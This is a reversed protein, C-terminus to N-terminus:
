QHIYAEPLIHEVKVALFMRFFTNLLFATTVLKCFCVALFHTYLIKRCANICVIVHHGSGFLICSEKFLHEDRAKAASITM